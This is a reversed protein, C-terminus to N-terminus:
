GGSFRGPADPRPGERRRRAALLVGAGVVGVVASAIGLVAIWPPSASGAPAAVTTPADVAAMPAGAADAVPSAPAAAPGATAAPAAQATTSSIGGAAIPEGSLLVPLDTSGAIGVEIAAIGSEPVAVRASYHGTEPDPTTLARTVDGSPGTLRIYFPTGEVPRAVSGDLVTATLGVLLETGGPTDRAIPADLRAEIGEKALVPAAVALLLIAAFAVGTLPRIPRRRHHM